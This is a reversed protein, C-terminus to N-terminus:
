DCYGLIFNFGSPVNYTPFLGTKSVKNKVKRVGQLSALNNRLRYIVISLQKIQNKVLYEYNPPTIEHNGNIKPIIFSLEEQPVMRVIIKDLVSYSNTKPYYRKIKVLNGKYYALKSTDAKEFTIIGEYWYKM